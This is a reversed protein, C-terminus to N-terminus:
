LSSWFTNEKPSMMNTQRLLTRKAYCTSTRTLDSFVFLTLRCRFSSSPTPRTVFRNVKVKRRSRRSQFGVSSPSGERRGQRVQPAVPLGYIYCSLILIIMRLWTFGLSKRLWRQQKKRETQQTLLHAENRNRTTWDHSADCVFGEISALLWCGAAAAASYSRGSLHLQRFKELDIVIPDRASSSFIFDCACLRVGVSRGISRRDWRLLFQEVPQSVDDPSFGDAHWSRIEPVIDSLQCQNSSTKVRGGGGGRVRRLSTPVNKEREM